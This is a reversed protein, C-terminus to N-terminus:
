IRFSKISMDSMRVFGFHIGNQADFWVSTNGPATTSRMKGQTGALGHIDVLQGPYWSRNKKGKDNPFSDWPNTNVFALVSSDSALKRPDTLAVEAPGDGDPDPGLVVKPKIKKSALDIRLVHIRNPIPDTSKKLSYQISQESIHTSNESKPEVASSPANSLVLIPIIKLFIQM